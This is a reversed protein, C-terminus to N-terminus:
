KFNEFIKKLLHNNDQKRFLLIKKLEINEKSIPYIMMNEPINKPIDCTLVLAQNISAMPLLLDSDQFNKVKAEIEPSLLGIHKLHLWIEYSMYLKDAQNLVERFTLGIKSCIPNETSVLIKIPNRQIEEYVYENNDDEATWYCLIADYLHQDLEKRIFKPNCRELKLELEPIEKKWATFKHKLALTAESTSIGITLSYEDKKLAINKSKQVADNYLIQLKKAAEFLIEGQPTLEVSRGNRKFLSCNLDGELSAIQQSIASQAVGCENAAKTFNLHTAAAVFYDLKEIGVTKLGGM